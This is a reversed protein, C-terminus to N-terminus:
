DGSSVGGDTQDEGDSAQRVRTWGSRGAEGRNIGFNRANRFDKAGFVRVSCRLFIAGVVDHRHAGWRPTSTSCRCRDESAVIGLACRRDQVRLTVVGFRESHVLVEKSLAKRERTWPVIDPGTAARTPAEVRGVQDRVGGGDELYTTAVAQSTVPM